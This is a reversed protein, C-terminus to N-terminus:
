FRALLGMWRGTHGAVHSDRVSQAAPRVDLLLNGQNTQFVFLCVDALVVPM